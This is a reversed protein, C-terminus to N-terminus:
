SNPRRPPIITTKLFGRGLGPRRGSQGASQILSSQKTQGVNHLSHGTNRLNQNQGSSQVNQNQGLSQANQGESKVDMMRKFGDGTTETPCDEIEQLFNPLSFLSGDTSEDSKRRAKNFSPCNREIKTQGQQQSPKSSISENVAVRENADHNRSPYSAMAPKCHRTDLTSVTCTSLSTELTSTESTQQSGSNNDFDLKTRFYM